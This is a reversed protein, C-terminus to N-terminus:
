ATPIGILIRDGEIRVPYTKLAVTVPPSLAKGTRIDFRGQHMQCEIVEGDVFGDALHSAAHTCFGETAYYGSPTRYIAFTDAGFDFAIVGEEPIDGVAGVAVWDLKEAM